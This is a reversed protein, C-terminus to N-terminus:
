CPRVEVFVLDASGNAKFAKSVQEFADDGEFRVEVDFLFGAQISAGPPPARDFTVVGGRRTVTWPNPGGQNEPIDMPDIGNIAMLVSDVVPLHIPRDYTEGGFSYRRVLQFTRAQGDGTGIVQDTRTPDVNLEDATQLDRSAFDFPDRMPFTNKPGRTVMWQHYLANIDIACAIGGPSTFTRLPHQWNQNRKESGNAVQAIDTSWRPMTVFEFRRIHMSPYSDIFM